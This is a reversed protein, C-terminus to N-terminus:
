VRAATARRELATLNGLLEDARRRKKTKRVEWEAGGARPGTRRAAPGIHPTGILHDEGVAALSTKVPCMPLPAGPRPSWPSSPCFWLLFSVREGGGSGFARQPAAPAARPNDWPCGHSQPPAVADLVSNSTGPDASLSMTLALATPSLPSHM